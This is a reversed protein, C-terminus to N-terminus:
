SRHVSLSLINQKDTREYQCDDMYHRYLEIGLGGLQADQLDQPYTHEARTLPNFPVGDDVLKLTVRDPTILLIVKIKHESVDNYAYSIINAMAENVSLDFRFLLEPDLAESTFIQELWESLRRIDTAQNKLTIKHELTQQTTL